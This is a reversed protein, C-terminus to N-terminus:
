KVVPAFTSLTPFTSERCQASRRAYDDITEQHIPYIPAPLADLPFFAVESVEVGDPRPTGDWERALFAITFTQVQDGNPYVVEYKPDTYIGFLDASRIRVGVEEETERIAAALASEGVDVCGHPLAWSGFLKQRELLLRGDADFILTRVGPVLIKMTGIKARLTRIYDLL